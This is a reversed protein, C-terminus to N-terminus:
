SPAHTEFGQLSVSTSRRINRTTSSRRLQPRSLLLCEWAVCLRRKVGELCLRTCVLSSISLASFLGGGLDPAKFFGGRTEHSVDACARRRKPEERQQRKEGSAMTATRLEHALHQRAPCCRASAVFAAGGRRREGEDLLGVGSCKRCCCGAKLCGVGGGRGM